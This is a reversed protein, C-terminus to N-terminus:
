ASSVGFAQALAGLAAAVLRSRNHPLTLLVGALLAGVTLIVQTQPSNMACGIVSAVVMGLVLRLIM